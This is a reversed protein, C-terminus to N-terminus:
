LVLDERVCRVTWCGEERRARQMVQMAALEEDIPTQMYMCVGWAPHRPGEGKCIGGGGGGGGMHVCRPPHKVVAVVVVVVVVVYVRPAPLVGVWQQVSQQRIKDHSVACMYMCMRVCMM